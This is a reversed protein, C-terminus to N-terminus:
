ELFLDPMVSHTCNVSDPPTILRTMDISSFFELIADTTMAIDVLGGNKLEVLLSWAGLKWYVYDEFTGNAPYIVEASTGWRYGNRRSARRLWKEYTPYEATKPQTTTTGWPSTLTGIYGHLTAAATFPRAELLAIISQVSKLPSAPATHCPGPYERNPDRGREWRSGKDLGPLNVSPVIWWETSDLTPSRFKVNTMQLAVAQATHLALTVSHPENGHHGGAVFYGVKTTDVVDPMISIRLGYIREGDDNFGADFVRTVDPFKKQIGDIHAKLQSPSLALAMRSGLGCQLFILLWKLLTLKM